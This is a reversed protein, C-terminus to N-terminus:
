LGPGGQHVRFFFALCSPPCASTCSPPPAARTASACSPTCTRCSGRGRLCSAACRRRLTRGRRVHVVNRFNLCLANIRHSLWTWISFLIMHITDTCLRGTRQWLCAIYFDPFESTHPPGAPHLRRPALPRWGAPGRHARVAVTRRAVRPGGEHAM